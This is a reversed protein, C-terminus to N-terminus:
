ISQNDFHNTTISKKMFRLRPMTSVIKNPTLLGLEFLLILYCVEDRKQEYIYCM